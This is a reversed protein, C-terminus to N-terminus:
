MGIWSRVKPCAHGLSAFHDVMADAAGSYVVEGDSMLVVDDFM